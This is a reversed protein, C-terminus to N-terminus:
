RPILYADEFGERWSEPPGQRWLRSETPGVGREAALVRAGGANARPVASSALRCPTRAYCRARTRIATPVRIARRGGCLDWRASRGCQAGVEPGRATGDQSPRRRSSPTSTVSGIRRQTRSRTSESSNGKATRREEVCEATRPWSPGDTPTGKATEPTEANTGTYPTGYGTRDRGREKNARKRPVVFVDSKRRENM